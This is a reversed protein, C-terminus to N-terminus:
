LAGVYNLDAQSAHGSSLIMVTDGPATGTALITGAPLELAACLERPCLTNFHCGPHVRQGVKVIKHQLMDVFLVDIPFGMEVTHIANCEPIFLGEGPQLPPAGILGVRRSQPTTAINAYTCLISRKSDNTIRLTVM